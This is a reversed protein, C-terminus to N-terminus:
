GCFIITLLFCSAAIQINQVCSKWHCYTSSFLNLLMQAQLHTNKRCHWHLYAYTLLTCSNYRLASSWCQWDSTSVVCYLLTSFYQFEVQIIIVTLIGPKLAYIPVPCCCYISLLLLLSIIPILNRHRFLGVVPLCVFIIQVPFYWCLSNITFIHGLGLRLKM